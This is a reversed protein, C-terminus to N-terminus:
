TLRKFDFNIVNAATAVSGLVFLSFATKMEPTKIINVTSINNNIIAFGNGGQNVPNNEIILDNGNYSCMEIIDKFYDSDIFDQM